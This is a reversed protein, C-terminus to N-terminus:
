GVAWRYQDAWPAVVKLDGAAEIAWYPRRLMERGLLVVDASGDAVIQEAQEAETIMGVAGTSLGAERLARALTVQYGPGVPVPADPVTGGSSCDFLDVGRAALLGGLEISEETTWGGEVWDTVSLRVWLPKSEPWVSRVAEVLALHWRTRDEFSGPHSLPSLASHLLYGHASHLEVVDFGAAQARMTAAVFAAIMAQWDSEDMARPTPAGERFPIAAPGVREWPWDAVFGRLPSWPRFTGAKRGAHALQIAAVAGGAHIAEVVRALGPVHDDDWIGLDQPSIRGGPTVATAETMVLGCGGYARSGLHVEHWVGAMGDEGECSYTCMPSLCVRNRLTLGRQTLPSFLSSM